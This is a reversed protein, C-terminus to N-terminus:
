YFYEKFIKATQATASKIKQLFSEPTKYGAVSSLESITKDKLSIKSNTVSFVLQNFIETEKLITFSEKLIVIIFKNKIIKGIIKLKDPISKGRSKSFIEPNCLIVYQVIFDIDTIGGSSKKLDFIKISSSISDASLKKRMAAFEKRLDSKKLDTLSLSISKVLRNFISKNGAIFSIKTAAQFEWARARNAFYNEYENMDWVLQSSKGEPRLRCDIRFPKLENRFLNLLKQFETQIGAFKNLDKLIFVIDIDSAFTLEKSGISGFGAILYNNEWRKGKSFNETILKIKEILITSLIKSARLPSIIKTIIIVSYIFLIKKVPYTVLETQPIKMFVKRSLFFERLEKDEAFLDVSYQSFGCVTLFYNLFKKDLLEAYWISPFVANRIIRVFNSLLKDPNEIKSLYDLVQPEIRKFYEISKSDFTKESILGRGTQLYRLDNLAKNRNIFKVADYQHSTKMEDASLISNYIRRIKNKSKEIKKLFSVGDNFGLFSSLKELIEGSSPIVHTQRDNMLQLFHEIKRYLIYNETLIEKESKTILNFNALRKIAELTNGTRLSKNKGGNLLQLAQVSFEIDRIGGISLKIDENTRLQREINEKMKLIHKKPSTSLNAPYIFPTLYNIFYNYLNKSGSLFNAKILMQREWFEGRSEYYNLYDQVPRCLPSSRGDPRLRFDIRYLVGGSIENSANLFLQAAETLIQSYYIKRQIFTDRDYFLILDIDSSYNLESGGTKGLSLLVYKSNIRKLSFRNLTEEYYVSFLKSALAKALVSLEFTVEQLTVKEFIDRTGIKLIEKKKIHKLANVKAKFSQLHRLTKNIDSKIEIPSIQKRLVSPNAIWYFYEPHLVLIDTLYNSYASINILIEAYHPYKLCERFFFIKDFMSEIIRSLNLESSATFYLKSVNKNFLNLLDELEASSLRGASIDFIKLEFKESLKTQRM